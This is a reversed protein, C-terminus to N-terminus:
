GMCGGGGLELWRWRGGDLEVWSMKAEVWNEAVSQVNNSGFYRVYNPLKGVHLDFFEFRDMKVSFQYLPIKSISFRFGSKCKWFELSLIWKRAFKPRFTLATETKSWFQYVHYKPPASESDPTVNEFKEGWFRDM